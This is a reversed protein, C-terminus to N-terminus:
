NDLLWHSGNFIYEKVDINQKYLLARSDNIFKKMQMYDTSAPFFEPNNEFESCPLIFFKKDYNVIPTYVWILYYGANFITVPDGAKVLDIRVM